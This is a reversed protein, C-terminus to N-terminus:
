NQEKVYENLSNIFDKVANTYMEPLYPLQKDVALIEKYIDVLGRQFEIRPHKTVLSMFRWGRGVDIQSTTAVKKHYARLLNSLIVVEQYTITKKLAKSLLSLLVKIM